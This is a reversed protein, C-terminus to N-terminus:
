PKLSRPMGLTKNSFPSAKAMPKILGITAMIKMINNTVPIM